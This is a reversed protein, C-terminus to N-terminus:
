SPIYMMKEHVPWIALPPTVNDIILVCDSKCYTTNCYSTKSYAHVGKAKNTKKPIAGLFGTIKNPFKM